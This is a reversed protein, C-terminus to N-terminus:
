FDDKILISDMNKYQEGKKHELQAMASITEKSPIKVDFPLGKHLCIQSYFIRIAQASSLGNKHLSSFVM